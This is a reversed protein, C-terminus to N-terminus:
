MSGGASAGKESEKKEDLCVCMAMVLAMDMNPAITVTYTQANGLYHKATSQREVRAATAGTADDTIQARKTRWDGEM